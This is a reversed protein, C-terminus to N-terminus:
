NLDPRLSKAGELYSHKALKQPFPSEASVMVRICMALSAEVDMEQFCMLACDTLGIQRAAVAPYAKTLDKTATFLVSYIDETNLNNELLIKELMAKTKNLIEDKTNNEATTAGRICIMGM